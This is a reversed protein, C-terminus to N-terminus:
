VYLNSVEKNTPHTHLEVSRTERNAIARKNKHNIKFLVCSQNFDELNLANSIRGNM